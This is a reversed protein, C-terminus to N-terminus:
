NKRKANKRGKSESKKKEARLKRVNALHACEPSCYFRTQDTRRTFLKGCDERKCIGFKADALKNITITAEIADQCYSREVLFYPPQDLQTFNLPNASKLWAGPPGTLARTYKRRQQWILHPFALIFPHPHNSMGASYGRTPNWLGWRNLFYRLNYSQEELELFEDRM